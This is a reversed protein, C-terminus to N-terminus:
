TTGRAPTAGQITLQYPFTDIRAGDPYNIHKSPAAAVALVLYQEDAALQFTGTTGPAFQPSYRVSFDSKVAVFSFRWDSGLNPNVTGDLRVSVRRAQDPTLQILNYGYQQPAVAAPIRYLGQGASELSVTYLPRYPVNNRWLDSRIARGDSYDFVVNRRAYDGILEAFAPQSLGFMRKITQIPHEGQKADRWMQHIKDVGYTDRIKNLLIWDGYYTEQALWRYHNRGYYGSGTVVEPRRMRANFNAHAEWFRGANPNGEGFGGGNGNNRNLQCAYVQLVHNFEHSEVWDDWYKDYPLCMHGVGIEDSGAWNAPPLFGRSWSGCLYLNIKYDRAPSVAAPDAFKVQDIYYSYTKEMKDLVYAPYDNIGRNARAWAVVDVADGWRVVFNASERSNGLYANNDILFRPVRSQKAAAEASTAAAAPTVVTSMMAAFTAILALGRRVKM